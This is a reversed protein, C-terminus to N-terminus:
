EYLLPCYSLDPGFSTAYLPQWKVKKTFADPGLMGRPAYLSLDCIARSTFM